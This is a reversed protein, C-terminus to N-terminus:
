EGAMGVRSSGVLYTAVCVFVCVSLCVCLLLSGMEGGAQLLCKCNWNKKRWRWALQLRLLKLAGLVSSTGDTKCLIFFPICILYGDRGMSHCPMAYMCAHTCAHQLFLLTNKEQVGSLFTGPSLSPLSPPLSSPSPSSSSSISLCVSLCVYLHIYTHLDSPREKERERTRAMDAGHGCCGGGTQFFPPLFFDGLRSPCAMRM